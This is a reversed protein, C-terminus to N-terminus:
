IKRNHGFLWSMVGDYRPVSHRRLTPKEGTKWFTTKIDSFLFLLVLIKKLIGVNVIYIVREM